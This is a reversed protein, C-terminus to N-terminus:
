ENRDVIVGEDSRDVGEIDLRTMRGFHDVREAIQESTVELLRSLSFDEVNYSAIVSGVVIGRRVTYPDHAGCSALYGFFGGAFSDGAGTPDFVEELPYAPTFFVEEEHWLLAGYEGRKIVLYRPGLGAIKRAARFLNSEGTFERAEAENITVCQVRRFVEELADREGEIWFNMTDAGVFAEGSIQELVKLQLEPHINALFVYETDRYAAPLEPDFNEFVNLQTDLTIAQNLDFGYRGSWRFTRGQVRGLGELDIGRSQLMEVHEAPFDDGVVAVVRVGTLLSAAASFYTASGGLAEEVKGFPTEVTDLAVSGVVLLSM